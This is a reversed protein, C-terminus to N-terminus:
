GHLDGKGDIQPPAIRPAAAARSEVVGLALGIVGLVISVIGLINTLTPGCVICDV